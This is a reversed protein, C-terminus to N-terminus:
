PTTEKLHLLSDNRDIIVQNRKIDQYQQVAIYILVGLAIFQLITFVTKPKM